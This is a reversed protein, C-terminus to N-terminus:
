GSAINNLDATTFHVMRPAEIEGVVSSRISDAVTSNM